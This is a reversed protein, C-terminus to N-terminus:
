QKKDVKCIKKILHYHLFVGVVAILLLQLLSFEFSIKINKNTLFKM